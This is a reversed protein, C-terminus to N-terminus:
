QKVQPTMAMPPGSAEPPYVTGQPQYPPPQNPYPQPNQFYMPQGQQAPYLQQQQQSAIVTTGTTAPQAVIVGGHAPRRSSAAAGAACCCCFVVIAIPIVIVVIVSIVIVAVIWGALGTIVYCDTKCEYDSDCCEGSACDGDYTCYKGVCTTACKDDADCCSEGPACDSNVSCSRGICSSQCVNDGYYRGDCCYKLSSCQYDDTCEDFAEVQSFVANLALFIVCFVTTKRICAMNNTNPLKFHTPGGYQQTPLQKIRIRRKEDRSPNVYKLMRDHSM